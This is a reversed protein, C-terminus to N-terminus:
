RTARAMSASCPRCRPRGSCRTSRCWSRRSSTTAAMPAPPAAVLRHDDLLAEAALLDFPGGSGQRWREFAERILTKNRSAQDTEETM